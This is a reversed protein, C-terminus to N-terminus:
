PIDPKLWCVDLFEVIKFVFLCCFNIEDSEECITSFFRKIVALSMWYQVDVEMVTPRMWFMMLM